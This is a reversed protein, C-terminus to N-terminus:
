IKLFDSLDEKKYPGILALNLNKPQFIDSALEVIDGTTVKGIKSIMEQPTDIKGELLKRVGFMTAVTASDELSLLLRGKLLEKAKKLEEKKIEGRVIKQHEKLIVALAEKIKDLNNAVGVQTYIYGCDYYLERGTSIYYCLGRKDRVERFLRSSMGGGLIAALVSLPYKREDFFSFSRFGVIFHIQETKKNKILIGPRVQKEEVKKFSKTKGRKWSALKEEITELYYQPNNKLNKNSLGGAVILLSNNPYYLQNMYNVFTQRDFKKVSEKTGTTDFGLPNDPYLLNELVDNVKRYPTDEYLNIEEIIVGKEKEIEEEKLLPNIIMDALVDTVISFHENTSKIWYGTHDKATFANFIGGMGEITSTIVFSNPYKKSGKFAMHEFFHAVGNNELSEYRSGARVLLLTTISSFAKTDVLIVQLGNKLTFFQSKM